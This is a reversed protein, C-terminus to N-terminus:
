NRRQVKGVDIFIMSLSSNDADLIWDIFAFRNVTLTNEKLRTAEIKAGYLATRGM